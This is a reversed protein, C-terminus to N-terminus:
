RSVWRVYCALMCLFVHARIRDDLRHRIPGIELALAKCTRFAREVRPLRKTARVVEEGPFTEAEM